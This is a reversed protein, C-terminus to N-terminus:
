TVAIAKMNDMSADTIYEVRAGSSSAANAGEGSSAGSVGDSASASSPGLPAKCGFLALAILVVALRAGTAMTLYRLSKSAEHRPKSAWGQKLLGSSSIEGAKSGQTEGRHGTAM